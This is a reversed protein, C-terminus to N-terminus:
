RQRSAM